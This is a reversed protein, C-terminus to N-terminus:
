VPVLDGLTLPDYNHFLPREYFNDREGDYLDAKLRRMERSFAKGEETEWNWEECVGDDVMDIFAGPRAAPLALLEKTREIIRAEMKERGLPYDSPQFCPLSKTWTQFEYGRQLMANLVDWRKAYESWHITLYDRGIWDLTSLTKVGCEQGILPLEDRIFSGIKDWGMTLSCLVFRGDSNRGVLPQFGTIGNHYLVSARSLLDIPLAEQEM